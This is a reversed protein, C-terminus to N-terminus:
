KNQKKPLKFLEGLKLDAQKPSFPLFGGSPYFTLEALYLKKETDFFDVRVFPFDASLTKAIQKMQEFHHPKEFRENNPFNGVRIDLWKWDTDYFSVPFEHVVCDEDNFHDKAAYCLKPEGNFCFLKYDNASRSLEEVFEEVIVRPTAKHYARCYSSILLNEPNFWNEKIDKEASATDFTNKDKVIYIYNGDSSLTSKVVFKEATIDKLNVEQPSNYVALLKATYGEQGLKESIYKKFEYKDVARRMNDTVYNLKYWQLKETFYKPARLNLPRGMVSKYRRKVGFVIRLRPFMKKLLKKIM